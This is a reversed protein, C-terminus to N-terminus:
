EDLVASMVSLVFFPATECRLIRKGLTIPAIGEAVALAVEGESFGGEAGVFFSIGINKDETGVNLLRKYLGNERECEYCIFGIEDKKAMKLAEKYSVIAHVQPIMGRGSQEAASKAIKNWREVKKQGSAEDPRSICRESLFPVIEYVGMEVAKQVILEMKDSKPLAMFLRAKYPPEGKSRESCLIRVSVSQATFGEIVGKYDTREGDCLWLEDGVRMRLSRSIHKANEGTVTISDGSIENKEVYIRPM